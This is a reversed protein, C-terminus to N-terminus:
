ELQRIWCIIYEVRQKTMKKPMIPSKLRDEVGSLWQKTGRQRPTLLHITKRVRHMAQPGRIDISLNTLLVVTLKVRTPEFQSALHSVKCFEDTFEYLWLAFWASGRNFTGTYAPV